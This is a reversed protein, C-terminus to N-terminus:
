SNLPDNLLRCYDISWVEIETYVPLSVRGEGEGGVKQICSRLGPLYIWNM